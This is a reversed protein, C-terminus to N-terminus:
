KPGTKNKEIDIESELKSINELVKDYIDSYKQSNKAYYQVTNKFNLQTINHKEFVSNYMGNIEVSDFSIRYGKAMILADALHIDTLVEIFKQENIIGKNDVIKSCSFFFTLCIYFVLYKM